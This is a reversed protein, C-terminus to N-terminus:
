SEYPKLIPEVLFTSILTTLTPLLFLPWIYRLTLLITLANLIGLAMTRPLNGLALLAANKLLQGTSNEFRSLVPFVLSLAGLVTVEGLAAGSFLAWSIEGYVAGNWAAILGEALLAGLALVLITPVIGSKWNLRFSHAFRRWSHEDGERFARYVSDYLAACSAGMTVVPFCGLIWFLSLFICDTIHALTVMLPSDPQFLNRFM